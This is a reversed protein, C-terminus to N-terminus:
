RCEDSPNLGEKDKSLTAKGNSITVIWISDYDDRPWDLTDTIGLVHAIGAIVSHEWVVLVTGKEAKIEAAIGATDKEDFKSNITLNYKVAIPVVTEFMRAHSTKDGMKLTPVYTYDPIGFKSQIMAPLQLSRNLGRCTLNGGKEPKEGHRILIVKLDTTSPNHIQGFGLEPILTILIITLIAIQRKMHICFLDSARIIQPSNTYLTTILVFNVHRTIQYLM